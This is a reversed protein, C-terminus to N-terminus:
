YRECIKCEVHAKDHMNGLQWIEAQDRIPSDSVTRPPPLEPLSKQPVPVYKTAKGNALVDIKDDPHYVSLILLMLEQVSLIFVYVKTTKSLHFFKNM